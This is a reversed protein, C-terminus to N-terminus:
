PTDEERGKKARERLAKMRREEAQEWEALIQQGLYRLRKQAAKIEDVTRGLQAALEGQTLDEQSCRHFIEYELSGEPLRPLLRQGLSRQHEFMRRRHLDDHASPADSVTDENRALGDDIVELKARLKRMRRYWTPPIAFLMHTLFSRVRPDWPLDEPDLVRVLADEVLDDADNESRTSWMAMQHLRMRVHPKKLEAAILTAIPTDGPDNVDDV